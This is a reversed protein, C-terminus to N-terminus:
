KCDIGFRKLLFQIGQRQHDYPKTKFKYRSLDVVVKKNFEKEIEDIRVNFKERLRKYVYETCPYEWRVKAKAWKAGPINKAINVLRENYSFDLCLTKNEVYFNIM